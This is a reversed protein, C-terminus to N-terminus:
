YNILLLIVIRIVNPFRENSSNNILAFALRSFIVFQRIWNSGTMFNFNIEILVFLHLIANKYKLYLKIERKATWDMKLNM